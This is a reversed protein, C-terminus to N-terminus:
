DGRFRIYVAYMTDCLGWKTIGKQEEERVRPLGCALSIKTREDVVQVATGLM